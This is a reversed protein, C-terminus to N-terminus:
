TLPKMFIDALNHNSDIHQVQITGNLVHDRFHHYKIALHKTRPRFADSTAITLCSKNDEYITSTLHGSFISQLHGSFVHSNQLKMDDIFSHTALEQILTRLPLVDRMCTSLVHYEAETTSLAVETQLKSVWTIPCGCYLLVYGTRSLSNDRLHSYAESWRGAFDADVYANLAHTAQPQLILGKDRTLYLYRGIHKVAKEHLLHPHHSFKACQHVAFSLDPRTNAAIFNLKGIVSRYNWTEQRLAGDPDSHLITASPTYKGHVREDTLLGLNTLVSDILGPQILSITGNQLNRNVRIGLFDCIEGEDKLLFTTKLTSIVHDVHAASPGFILCDDTYVVLICDHRFFLCPDITSQQFGQTLLGDCLHLFWGCAAQKTGYLNKTLV